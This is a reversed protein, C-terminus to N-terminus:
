SISIETRFKIMMYAFTKILFSVKIEFNIVDCVPLCVIVICMNGLIELLLLLGAIFNQRNISYLMLFMKRWFDHLFKPLSFLEYRKKNKLFAKHLTFALPWCKRKLISQYVEVPVFLLFLSCILSNIWLYAWNQKKIFPYPVLKEM